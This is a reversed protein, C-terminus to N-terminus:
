HGVLKLKNNSKTLIGHNHLFSIILLDQWLLNQFCDKFPNFENPTVFSCGLIFSLVMENFVVFNLM